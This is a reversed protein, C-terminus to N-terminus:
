LIPEQRLFFLQQTISKNSRTPQNNNKQEVAVHFTNILYAVYPEYHTM